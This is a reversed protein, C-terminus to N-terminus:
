MRANFKTQSHGIICEIKLNHSATSDNHPAKPLLLEFPQAPWTDLQTVFTRAGQYIKIM